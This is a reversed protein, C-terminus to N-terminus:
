SKGYEAVRLTGDDNKILITGCLACEATERYPDITIDYGCKPCKMVNSEPTGEGATSSPAKKRSNRLAKRYGRRMALSWRIAQIFNIFRYIREGDQMFVTLSSGQRRISPKRGDAKVDLISYRDKPEINDFINCDAEIVNKNTLILTQNLSYGIRVHRIEFVVLEDRDLSYGKM